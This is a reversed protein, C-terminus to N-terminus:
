KVAGRKGDILEIIANVVQELTMDSSDLYYADEAQKLPSHERHMDRYDREEIEKEIEALSCAVGKELLEQYRRKARVSVSATLYVKVDAQPLVCTGIDRGDMIVDSTRALEKQLQTLKERVPGYASTQSAMMGVEETRIQGTVNEGNLYVQQVGGEYGLTVAVERCGATIAAEDKPDTGQRLFYLAMARYMAGTDVYIFNRKAAVAKAVTSKGAGAPGDVAVNFAM